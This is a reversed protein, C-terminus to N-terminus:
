VRGERGDVDYKLLYEGTKIQEFHTIRAGPLPPTAPRPSQARPQPDVQGEREVVEGHFGGNLYPYTRTGHYHYGLGNSEHGNFADLGKAPSGDPETEGYLPYGDRAWGLPNGKGVVAGLHLPAVHYHYDDARGCHGGFTDLEGALNSDVGRNNLANFIPIGNAAIAIAGRLFHDKASMPAKAPVPVAPFTWANNGKYAQPMPVQQQWARIGVMMAHEPLGDSEVRVTKGDSRWAVKPAFKGFSGALRSDAVGGGQHASSLAGLLPVVGIVAFVVIRRPHQM